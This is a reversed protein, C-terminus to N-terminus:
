SRGRSFHKELTAHTVVDEVVITSENAPPEGERYSFIIRLRQSPRLVFLNGSGALKYAKRSGTLAQVGGEQLINLADMVRARDKEGLHRIAQIVRDEYIMQM